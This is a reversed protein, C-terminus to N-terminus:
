NKNVTVASRFTADQTMLSLKAIHKTALSEGSVEGEVVAAAATVVKENDSM